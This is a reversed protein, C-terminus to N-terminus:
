PDVFAAVKDYVRELHPVLKLQRCFSNTTVPEARAYWSRQLPYWVVSKIESAPSVIWVHSCSITSSLYIQHLDLVYLDISPHTSPYIPLYIPQFTPLHFPLVTSLYFSLFISLYFSPVTVLYFSAFISLYFSLYISLYFSIVTYRCFPLSIYIYVCVYLSLSLSISLHLHLYMSVYMFTLM